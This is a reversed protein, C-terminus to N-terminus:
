KSTTWSIEWPSITVVWGQVNFFMEGTPEPSFDSGIAVFSITQTGKQTCGNYSSYPGRGYFFTLCEVRFGNQASPEATFEVARRTFLQDEWTYSVKTLRVKQIKVPIDRILIDQNLDHYEDLQWNDVFIRTPENSAADLELLTRLTVSSVGPPIAGFSMTEQSQWGGTTLDPKSSGGLSVQYPYTNGLNDILIQDKSLAYSVEGWSSDGQVQIKVETKSPHYTISSLTLTIGNSAKIVGVIQTSVPRMPTLTAKPTPPVSTIVVYIPTPPAQRLCAAMMVFLLIGLVNIWPKM